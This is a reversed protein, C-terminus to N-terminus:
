GGQIQAIKGLITRRARHAEEYRRVAELEDADLGDLRPVVQSAALSDYGPIALDDPSGGEGERRVPIVQDDGDTAASATPPAPAPAAAMGPAPSRLNALRKDLEKRGMQVAFQGLMRAIRVQLDVQERGKEALDPVLERSNAIFGAPVFLCADLLRDLPRKAGEGGAPTIM